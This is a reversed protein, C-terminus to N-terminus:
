YKYTYEIIYTNLRPLSRIYLTEILFGIAIGDPFDVFIQDFKKQKTHLIKSLDSLFLDHSKNIHQKIVKTNM